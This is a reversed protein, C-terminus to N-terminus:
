QKILNRYRPIYSTLCCVLSNELNINTLRNWYDNKIFVMLSFGTECVYTTGFRVLVQMERNRVISHKVPLQIWFKAMDQLVDFNIRAENDAQLEAM